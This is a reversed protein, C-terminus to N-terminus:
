RSDYTIAHRVVYQENLDGRRVGWVYDPGFLHPEFRDPFRVEGLFSGDPGFVDYLFPQQWGVAPPRDPRDNVSIEIPHTNRQVWIRGDKGAEIGRFPPMNSPLWEGVPARYSPHEEMWEFQRRWASAEEPHVPLREVSRRIRLVGDARRAELSYDDSVGVVFYGDPHWSWYREIQYPGGRERPMRPLQPVAMTDAVDGDELVLLALNDLNDGVRTTVLLRGPDDNYVWTGRRTTLFSSNLTWGDLPRGDVTFRVIRRNAWDHLYLVGASDVVMGLSRRGYEGPGGGSRGVPGLFQGNRDFHRLEPVQGDLVYIGGHRDETMRSVEGFILHEPGDLAGIVLDESLSVDRWVQGAV